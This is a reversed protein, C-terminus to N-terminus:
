RDADRGRKPKTTITVSPGKVASAEAEAVLRKGERLIVRGTEDVDVDYSRAPDSTSPAPSRTAVQHPDSASAELRVPKAETIDVVDGALLPHGCIPCLEPAWEAGVESSCGRQSCSIEFRM